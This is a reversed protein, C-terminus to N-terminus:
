GNVSSPGPMLTRTEAIELPNRTACNFVSKADTSYRDGKM